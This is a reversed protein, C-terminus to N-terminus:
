PKIGSLYQEYRQWAGSKNTNISERVASASFTRAPANRAEPALYDQSWELGLEAFLRAGEGAPDAVFAKYIMDVFELGAKKWAAIAGRRFDLYDGIDGLRTSYAYGAPFEHFFISIATDRQDRDIDVFRAKPHIAALLGAIEANAPTKDTIREEAIGAARLGQIDAAALDARQQLFQERTEDVGANACSLAATKLWPLLAGREGASGVTPPASILTELLTGGCRPSGTLYIPQLKSETSISVLSGFLAIAGRLEEDAAARSWAPMGRSQLHNAASAMQWAREYQGIKDLARATGFLLTQANTAEAIKAAREILDVPVPRMTELAQYLLAPHEPHSRLGKEVALRAVDMDGRFLAIRASTLLVEADDPTFHLAQECFAAAEEYRSMFIAFRSLSLFDMATQPGSAGFSQKFAAEAGALDGKHFLAQALQRWADPTSPKPSM